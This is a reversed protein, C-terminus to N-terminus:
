GHSLRWGSLASRAIWQQCCDGQRIHQWHSIFTIAGEPSIAISGKLTTHHKCNSILEGNLHLGSPM